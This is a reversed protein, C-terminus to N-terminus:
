KFGNVGIKLDNQLWPHILLLKFNRRKNEQEFMEKNEGNKNKKVFVFGFKMSILSIQIIRM